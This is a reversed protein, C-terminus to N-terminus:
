YNLFAKEISGLVNVNPLSIYSRDLKCRLWIANVTFTYSQTITDGGNNGTPTGPNLPYQIYSLSPTLKIDFWDNETPDTVLSGQIYIRGTFDKVSWAVTHIGNTSGYYGSARVKGGTTNLIGATNTMLITTSRAM